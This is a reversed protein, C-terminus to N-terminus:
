AYVLLSMAFIELLIHVTNFHKWSRADSPHAIEVDRQVHEAHWRMVGALGEFQYLRKLMNTIPLFWMMQYPIM